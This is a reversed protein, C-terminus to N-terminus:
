IFLIIGFTYLSYFYSFRKIFCMNIGDFGAVYAHITFLSIKALKPQYGDFGAVHADPKVGQM